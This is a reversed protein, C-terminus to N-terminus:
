SDTVPGAVDREAGMGGDTINCCFAQKLWFRKWNQPEGDRIGAGLRMWSCHLTSGQDGSGKHSTQHVASASTGLM